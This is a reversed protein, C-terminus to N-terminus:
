HSQRRRRAVALLGVALLGITAPEPIFTNRVLGNTPMALIGSGPEGLGIWGLSLSGQYPTPPLGFFAALAENKIDLFLGASLGIAGASGTLFDVSIQPGFFTGLLLVSPGIDASGNGDTDVSGTISLLSSGPAGAFLWSNPTSALFAGTQFNLLCDICTFAGGNAPTNTGTVFDVEIDVGFLPTAGGFYAVSGATPSVINFDITPLARATGGFLFLAVFAGLAPRWIRTSSPQPVVRSQTLM